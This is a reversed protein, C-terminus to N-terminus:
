LGVRDKQRLSEPATAGEAAMKRHVYRVVLLSTVIHAGFGARERATLSPHPM